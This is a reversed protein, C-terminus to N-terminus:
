CDERIMTLLRKEEREMDEADGESREHDHGVLHLVGHVLLREITIEFTEGISEAERRATEVSIVVDGLMDTLPDDLYGQPFSLVNTPGKKKLYLGNLEAIHTDDTFLISLDKNHCGLASLLAEM